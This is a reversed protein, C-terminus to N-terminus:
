LQQGCEVCFKSDPLLKAGCKTCCRDTLLLPRSDMQQLLTSLKANIGELHGVMENIKWYWCTVERILVIVVVVIVLIAITEGIPQDM